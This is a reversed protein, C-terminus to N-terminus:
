RSQASRWPRSAPGNGSGPTSAASTCGAGWSRGGWSCDNPVGGRRTTLPRPRDGPPRRHEPDHPVPRVPRAARGASRGDRWERSEGSVGRPRDAGRGRQVDGHRHLLRGSRRPQGRDRQTPLRLASHGARELPRVDGDGRVAGADALHHRARREAPRVADVVAVVEYLGAPFDAPIKFSTTLTSVANPGLRGVSRTGLHRPCPISVCPATPDVLPITLWFDVTFPPATAPATAANRVRATVSITQGVVSAAPATISLAELDPRVVQLPTTAALANNDEDAEPLADEDDVRATLVFFGPAAGPPVIATVRSTLGRGAALGGVRLLGIRPGPQETPTSLYVGISFPRAHGPGAALNRATVGVGIRQGTGAVAPASVAAVVLDPRVVTVPITAVVVNNTESVEILTDPDDAVLALYHDGQAVDTPVTVSTTATWTQGARVGASRPSGLLRSSGRDFAPTPSLYIGIGFPASAGASLNQVSTVVPIAQGAGATAPGSVATAALDPDVVTLARTVVGVNNGEDSEPVAGFDDVFVAVFYSGGAVHGPIGLTLRVTTSTGGALGFVLRQELLHANSRNFGEFPSLYYGVRFTPVARTVGRNQLVASITVARTATLSASVAGVTLDPRVVRLTAAGGGVNNSEDTELVTEGDDAVAFLFYDGEALDVPLTVTTAGTSTAGAALGAVNRQGLRRAQSRVFVPDASLYLGVAFAGAAAPRLAQNRVTSTLALARGAGGVAPGTVGTAILDPRVVTVAVSAVLVNNTEDLEPVTDADDAVAVLYCSCEAADAPITVTTSSSSSAGAGLSGVPRAGLFTAQSRDFGQVPSLYIGVTFAGAAAPSAAQNRVTSPV